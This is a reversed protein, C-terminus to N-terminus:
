RMDVKRGQLVKHCGSVYLRHSVVNSLQCVIMERRTDNPLRCVCYIKVEVTKRVRSGLPVRRKKVILFRRMFKNELCEILHPRMKKTDFESVIPDFGHVLETACAIAHLGCDSSNKQGAINMTDFRVAKCKSPPKFFSCIYRVVSPSASSGVAMSDYLCVTDAHHEGNQSINTTTIWHSNAVHLIQIFPTYPPIASFLKERKCCQTSQWGSIKSESQESLLCQAAYIINDNLWEGSKIVQQDYLSLNYQRIWTSDDKIPSTSNIVVTEDPLSSLLKM